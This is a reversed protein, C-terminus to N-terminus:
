WCNIFGKCIVNVLITVGYGMIVLVLVIQWKYAFLYSFLRKLTQVKSKEVSLEDDRYSNFAM